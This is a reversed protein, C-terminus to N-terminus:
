ALGFRSVIANLNYMKMLIHTGQSDFGCGKASRICHEVVSGCLFLKNWYLILYVSAMKWYRKIIEFWKNFHTIIFGIMSKFAGTHTLTRHLCRASHSPRWKCRTYRTNKFRQTNYGIVSMVTSCMALWLSLIEFGTNKNQVTVLAMNRDKQVNEFVCLQNLFLFNHTHTHTPPPPPPM